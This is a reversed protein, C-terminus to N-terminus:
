HISPLSDRHFDPHFGPSLSTLSYIILISPALTLITIMFVIQLVVAVDQPQSTEAMSLTVKPIGSVAFAPAVFFLMFFLPLIFSSIKRM